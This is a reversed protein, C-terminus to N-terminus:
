KSVKKMTKKVQPKLLSAKVKPKRFYNTIVELDVGNYSEENEIFKKNENLEIQRGVKIDQLVLNSLGL